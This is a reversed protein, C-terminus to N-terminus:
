GGECRVYKTPLSVVEQEILGALRLQSSINLTRTQPSSTSVELGFGLARFRLGAPLRGVQEDMLTETAM